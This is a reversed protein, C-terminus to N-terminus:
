YILHRFFVFAVQFIIFFLILFFIWTIQKKFKTLSVLYLIGGIIFTLFASNYIEQRDVIINLDLINVLMPIATLLLVGFTLFFSGLYFNRDDSSM